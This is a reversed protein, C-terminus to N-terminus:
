PGDWLPGKAWLPQRLNRRSKSGRLFCAENLRLGEIFIFASFISQLAFGRFRFVFFFIYIMTSRDQHSWEMGIFIPWEVHTMRAQSRVALSFVRKCFLWGAVDETNSSVGFESAWRPGCASVLYLFDSFRYSPIGPVRNLCVLTDFVLNCRTIAGNKNSWCALGGM